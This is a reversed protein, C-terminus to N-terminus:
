LRHRRITKHWEPQLSQPICIDGGKLPFSVGQICVAGMVSLPQLLQLSVIGEKVVLKLDPECWFTEFWRGVAMWSAHLLKLLKLLM